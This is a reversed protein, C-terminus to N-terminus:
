ALLERKWRAPLRRQNYHVEGATLFLALREIAERVAAGAAPAGPEAYVANVVLRGRERDFAPDIRGIIRDGHLIPLVYYGWRRKAQPVYIEIRFFFDFMLETRARDCILNDFPSLLTTRPSWDGAELREILPLDDRDVLWTGPWAAGGEAVTVPILRGEAQLDALTQKLNPYDGRTFHFNIQRPTGLGLGRVARLAALREREREPLRARPTWDPLVREALDWRKQLGDRGAVMIKGGIWLADLMRSINRGSTWGTSVWQAPHIGDEELDRSLLPGHRRLRDLVYRKLRANEQLWARTRGSQPYRRMLPSFLPFDETLVFSACHAWYEFLRRDEYILAELEAVPYPGLRSAMVLLHSRAVASIPDIQLCGLDRVLDLMATRSPEPWPGALHQRSIALRRATVPSITLTQNM